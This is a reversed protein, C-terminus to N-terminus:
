FENSTLSFLAICIQADAVGQVLRSVYSIAYFATGSSMTSAFAYAYSSLVMCLLGSTVANKRGIKPM